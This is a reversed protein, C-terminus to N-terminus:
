CSKWDLVRLILIDCVKGERDFSVVAVSESNVDKIAVAGTHEKTLFVNYQEEEEAVSLDTAVLKAKWAAKHPEKAQPPAAKPTTTDFPTQGVSPIDVELPAALENVDM